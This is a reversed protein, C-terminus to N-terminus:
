DIGLLKVNESGSIRAFERDFTILRECKAKGAEFQIVGDAFDGGEALMTLGAETALRDLEVTRTQILQRIVDRIEGDAYRYARKLVWFLECLVITSIVITGASEIAHAAKQSQKEDDWAIYRVLVNTDVAIKDRAIRDASRKV